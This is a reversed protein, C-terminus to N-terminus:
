QFPSGDDPLTLQIEAFGAPVVNKLVDHQADHRVM